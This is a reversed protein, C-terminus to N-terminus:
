ERGIQNIVGDNGIGKPNEGWDNTKMESDICTFILMIFRGIFPLVCILYWWGSKGTDHLRRITVALFPISTGLLYISLIFILVLSPTDIESSDSFTESSLIILFLTACIFTFHCLLFMWYEKRRARGSFDLYQKLVKVYWNM